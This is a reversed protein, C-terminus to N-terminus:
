HSILFKKKPNKKKKLLNNILTFFNVPFANHSYFCLLSSSCLNVIYTFGNDVSRMCHDCM